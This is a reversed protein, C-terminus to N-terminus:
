LLSYENNKNNKAYIKYTSVTGPKNNYDTLLYTIKQQMQQKSQFSEIFNKTKHYKLFKLLLIMM